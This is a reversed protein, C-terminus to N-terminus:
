LRSSVDHFSLRLIYFPNMKSFSFYDETPVCGVGTLLSCILLYRRDARNCSEELICRERERERERERKSRRERRTDLVSRLILDATCLFRSFINKGWRNGIDTRISKVSHCGDKCCEYPWRSGVAAFVYKRKTGAGEAVFTSPVCSSCM